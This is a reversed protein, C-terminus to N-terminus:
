NTERDKKAAEKEALQTEKRRETDIKDKQKESSM